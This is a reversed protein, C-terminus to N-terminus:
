SRRTRVSVPVGKGEILDLLGRAAAWPSSVNFERLEDRQEIELLPPDVFDGRHQVQGFSGHLAM